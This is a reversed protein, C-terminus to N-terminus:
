MRDGTQLRWEGLFWPSQPDSLAENAMEGEAHGIQLERGLKDWDTVNATIIGPKETFWNRRCFDSADPDTSFVFLKKGAQNAYALVAELLDSASSKNGASYALLKFTDAHEELVAFAGEGERGLLLTKAPRDIIQSKWDALSAYGFRVFGQKGAVGSQFREESIAAQPILPNPPASFTHPPQSIFYSTPFRAAGSKSLQRCSPNDETVFALLLAGGREATMRISETIMRTFCGRGRAEPLTWSGTMIGCIVAGGKPFLVQRYSVGSGALPEGDEELLLYDPLPLGHMQRQYGWCFTREDGWGPFCRNLCSLTAIADPPNIRLEM